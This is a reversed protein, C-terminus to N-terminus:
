PQYSDSKDRNCDYCTLRLNHEESSGGKSVPIIHDFEVENDKLHTGCNQCTYNDRRVIRMQVHFPIKKRGIRRAESTETLEEAVFYVPCIHGFVNCSADLFDEQIVDPYNDENFKEVDRQFMERRFADLPSRNDIENAQLALTYKERLAKATDQIRQWIEPTYDEKNITEKSTVEFPVRYIHIPPLSFDGYFDKQKEEFSKNSKNLEDFRIENKIQELAQRLVLQEDDLFDQYINRIDQKLPQIQGLMNTNLVEKLYENHKVAESKLVPLLPSQEVLPGYPCYKLEWCPKCVRAKREKWDQLIEKDTEDTGYGLCKKVSVHIAKRKSKM